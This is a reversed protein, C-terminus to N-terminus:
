EFSKKLFNNSVLGKKLRKITLGEDFVITQPVSVDGFLRSADALKIKAFQVRDNNKLAKDRLESIFFNFSSDSDATVFLIDINNQRSFSLIENVEALCLSCESSYFNLVLREPFQKSNFLISDNTPTAISFEHLEPVKKNKASLGKIQFLFALGILAVFLLVILFIRYM